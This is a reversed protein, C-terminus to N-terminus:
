YKPECVTILSIIVIQKIDMNLYDLHKAIKGQYRKCPLLKRQTHNYKLVNIITVSSCKM